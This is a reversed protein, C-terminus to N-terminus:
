RLAASELPAAAAAASAPAVADLDPDRAAMMVKAVVEDASLDAKVTM